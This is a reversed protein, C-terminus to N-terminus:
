PSSSTNARPTRACPRGPSTSTASDVLPALRLTIAATLAACSTPMTVQASVPGAGLSSAPMHSSAIQTSAAPVAVTCSTWRSSIWPSHM